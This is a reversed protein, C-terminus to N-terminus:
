IVREATQKTKRFRLIGVFASGVALAENIIGGITLFALNYLLILTSTLLISYRLTQPKGLSMFFTNVTLAIIILISIAGQWSFAGAALMALLLFATAVRYAVTGKKFFVFCGNRIICIINLMFGSTAGLFLYSLCICATSFTQLLLMMRYKNTQYSAVALVSGLIGFVQGIIYEKM